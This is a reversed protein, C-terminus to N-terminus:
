SWLRAAVLTRFFTYDLGDNALLQALDGENWRDNWFMSFVQEENFIASGGNTWFHTMIM